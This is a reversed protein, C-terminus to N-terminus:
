AFGGVTSDMEALGEVLEMTALRTFIPLDIESM